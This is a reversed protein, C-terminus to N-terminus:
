GAADWPIDLAIISNYDPRKRIIRFEDGDVLVEPILPRTNYTSAMVSGYAGAGEAMTAVNADTLLLDWDPMTDVEDLLQM